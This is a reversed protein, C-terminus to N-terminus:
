EVWIFIVRDGQARSLDQSDWGPSVWRPSPAGVAVSAVEGLAPPPTGAGQGEVRAAKVGRCTGGRTVRGGATGNGGLAQTRSPSPATSPAQPDTSLFTLQTSTPGAVDMQSADEQPDQPNGLPSAGTSPTPTATPPRSSEPESTSAPSLPTTSAPSRSAAPQAKPMGTSNQVTIGHSVSSSFIFLHALGRSRKARSDLLKGTGPSHLCCLAVRADM